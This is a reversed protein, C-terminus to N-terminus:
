PSNEETACAAISRKESAPESLKMNIIVVRAPQSRNRKM